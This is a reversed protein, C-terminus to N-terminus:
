LVSQVQNGRSDSAFVLRVRLIQRDDDSPAIEFGLERCLALMRQNVALVEGVVERIGRERCYRIIKRM